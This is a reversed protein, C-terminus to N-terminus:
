SVVDTCRDSSVLRRTFLFRGIEINTVFVYINTIEKRVDTTKAIRSESELDEVAKLFAWPGSFTEYVQKKGRRGKQSRKM